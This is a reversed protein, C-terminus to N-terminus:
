YCCVSVFLCVFWNLIHSSRLCSSTSAQFVFFFLLKCTDLIYLDNLPKTGDTGGFVLLNDGVTTCTHSDRPPPPTGSIIPQTWIQKAAVFIVVTLSCTFWLLSWSLIM